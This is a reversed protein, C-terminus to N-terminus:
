VPLRPSAARARAMARGSMSSRNAAQPIESIVLADVRDLFARRRAALSAFLPAIRDYAAVPDQLGGKQLM